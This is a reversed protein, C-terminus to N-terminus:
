TREIYLLFVNGKFEQSPDFYFYGNPWLYHAIIHPPDFRPPDAKFWYGINSNKFNNKLIYM